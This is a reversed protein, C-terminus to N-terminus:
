EKNILDGLQMPREIFVQIGVETPPVDNNTFATFCGDEDVQVQADKFDWTYDEDLECTIVDYAGESRVNIYDIEYGNVVVRSAAHIIDFLSAAFM